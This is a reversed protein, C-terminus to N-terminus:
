SSIKFITIEAATSDNLSDDDSLYLTFGTATIATITPKSYTTGGTFLAGVANIIQNTPNLGLGTWATSTPYTVTVTGRATRTVTPAVGNWSYHSILSASSSSCKVQFKAIFLPLSLWNGSHHKVLIGNNSVDVGYGNNEMVFRMGGSSQNYAFIYNDSRTGLCFGNAFFLSVYSESKYAISSLVTSTGWYVYAQAGKCSKVYSGKIYVKHYGAVVRVSKSSAIILREINALRQEISLTTEM